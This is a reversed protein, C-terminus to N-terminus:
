RTSLILPAGISRSCSSWRASSPPMRSPRSAGSSDRGPSSNTKKLARRVTEYCITDVVELEVLRAALMSLTWRAQGQPATSCALKILQAQGEGDLKPRRPPQPPARRVLLAQPGHETAQKRWSQVSRETVGFAEAIQRDGWGPGRPGQDCKLLAQARARKWAAAKGRHVVGELEEREEDTLRVVYRKVMLNGERM